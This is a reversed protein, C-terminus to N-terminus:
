DDYTQSNFDTHNRISCNSMFGLNLLFGHLIFKKSKRSTYNNNKVGYAINLDYFISAFTGLITLFAQLNNHIM